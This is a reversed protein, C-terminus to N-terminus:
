ADRVYVREVRHEAHDDKDLGLLTELSIPPLFGERSEWVSPLM